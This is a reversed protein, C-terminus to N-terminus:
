AAPDARAPSHQDIWQLARLVAAIEAVGESFFADIVVGAYAPESQDPRFILYKSQHCKGRDDLVTETEVRHGRYEM